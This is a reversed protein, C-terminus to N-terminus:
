LAHKAMDVAEEYPKMDEMDGYENTIDTRVLMNDLVKMAETNTM